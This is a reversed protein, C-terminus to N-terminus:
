ATRSTSFATAWAVVVSMKMLVRAWASSKKWASQASFVRVKGDAQVV